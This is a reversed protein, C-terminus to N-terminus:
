TKLVVSKRGHVRFKRRNDPCRPTTAPVSRLYGKEKRLPGSHTCRVRSRARHGPVGVAARQKTKFTVKSSAKTQTPRVSVFFRVAVLLFCAEHCVEQSPLSPLPAPHRNGQTKLTHTIGWLHTNPGEGRLIIGSIIRVQTGKEKDNTHKHEEKSENSSPLHEEARKRDLLGRVPNAVM